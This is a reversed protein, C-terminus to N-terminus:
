VFGRKRLLASADPLAGRFAVYADKPDQRGGASYIAERLRRALDANFIDGTEEFATFADADMVESWMYSYYGASYGDGSFVHAFHTPRHRMVIEDPMGLRSLTQTELEAVEVREAGKRSHVDLDFIASALYEVTSFGQNFNRAALVREMLEAPMPKGTEVHVAFRSLVEPESLWHEYLQSPLEVFDRSVSTGSIMPYTVDSLLGHLAHGFEHFLTRADDFTLLTPEGKPAKAFNMVNVIIPRIDGGLKQQRRFASMWAGSRKTSRNFYDGLFLGVHAGDAGTVEFARVDPHYLGLGEVQRFNLGFLRQATDFAAEIIRELQFYPKLEAEDLAHDRLRLKEAYFRWDWPAITVNDGIEAALAQLAAAERKAQAVAPTWVTTLLDRVAEPTGAMTDDLKYSAFDAFGLLEARERRLRLIEAIVERNDTDGANEGRRIWGNFAIERLDRRTSFQLFPEILSRSLTIVHKGAHGRESAAEAAAQRLFSPLGALDEETELLLQFGAEDALVNQSFRTGLVALEQTIEAMRTRGAEDLAAGARTFMLHYRELVRAAEADLGSTARAEWLAAVRAYLDQNLLTQSSHRALKPAIDREIRQLDASTHSGALNFFVSAVRTLDRGALEMAAITNDFTAPEPNAAIADVEARASALAAEFAPEYHWTEIEAFPPLGFPGTWDRLLPNDTATDSM